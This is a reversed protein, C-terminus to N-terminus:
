DAAAYMMRSGHTMQVGAYRGYSLTTDRTPLATSMSNNCSVRILPLAHWPNANSLNFLYM